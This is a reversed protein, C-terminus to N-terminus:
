ELMFSFELQEGVQIKPEFWEEPYGGNGQGFYNTLWEVQLWERGRSNSYGVVKVTAGVKAAMGIDRVLKLTQGPRFKM